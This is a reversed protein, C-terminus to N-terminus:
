IIKRLGVEIALGHSRPLDISRLIKRVPHLPAIFHQGIAYVELSPMEHGKSVLRIIHISTGPTPTSYLSTLTYLPSTDISPVEKIFISTSDLTLTKRASPTTPKGEGAKYRPARV